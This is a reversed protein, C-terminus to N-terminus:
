FVFGGQVESIGVLNIENSHEFRQATFVFDAPECAFAPWRKKASQQFPAQNILEIERDRWIHESSGFRGCQGTQARFEQRCAHM